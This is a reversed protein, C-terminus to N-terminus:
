LCYKDSQATTAGAHWHNAGGASPRWHGGVGESDQCGRGIMTPRHQVRGDGKSVM